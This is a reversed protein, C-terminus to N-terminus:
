QVEDQAQCSAVNKLCATCETYAIQETIRM